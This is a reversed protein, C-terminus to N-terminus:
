TDYFELRKEYEKKIVILMATAYAKQEDTDALRKKLTWKKIYYWSLFMEAGYRLSETFEGTSDELQEQLVCVIALFLILHILGM